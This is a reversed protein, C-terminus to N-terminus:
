TIWPLLNEIIDLISIIIPIALYMILVKGAFEIKTAIASEGADKCLQASFDAIYSIGLIKFIVPLYVIDVNIKDSIIKITDMIISLKAFVFVFIFLSTILTIQISFEPKYNKIVLSLIVAIIGVSAIKIIEM